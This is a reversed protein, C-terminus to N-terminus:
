IVGSEMLVEVCVLGVGGMVCGEEVMVVYDYMEVFECVFVVDVLKVFCMNVVMVDFEEVVVFLLVVMMGFVFIM